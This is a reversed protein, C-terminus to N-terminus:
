SFAVADVVGLVPSPANGGLKWLQSPHWQSWKQGASSSAWWCLSQGSCSALVPLLLCWFHCLFDERKCRTVLWESFRVSDVFRAMPIVFHVYCGCLKLESKSVLQLLLRWFTRPFHIHFFSHVSELTEVGVYALRKNENEVLKKFYQWIEM